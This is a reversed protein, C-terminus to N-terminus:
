HRRRATAILSAGILTMLILAAGIGPNEDAAKVKVM